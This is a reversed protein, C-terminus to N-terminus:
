CTCSFPTQDRKYDPVDMGTITSFHVWFDLDFNDRLDDFGRQVHMEGDILYERASKILFEATYPVEKEGITYYNPYYYHRSAYDKMWEMAAEKDVSESRTFAPHTWEHRLSTITGPQLWLFFREGEEPGEPLFPDVVGIIPEFSKSANEKRDVGVQQGSYLREFATVPAIAIHVADRKAEGLIIKGLQATLENNM